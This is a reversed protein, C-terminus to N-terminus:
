EKPTFEIASEMKDGTLDKGGLTRDFVVKKGRNEVSVQERFIFTLKDRKWRKDTRHMTWIELRRFFIKKETKKTYSNKRFRKMEVLARTCKRSGKVILPTKEDFFDKVSQVFDCLEGQDTRSMNDQEDVAVWIHLGNETEIALDYTGEPLNSVVFSNGSESIAAKYAVADRRNIAFASLAKEGELVTCTISRGSAKKEEGRDFTISSVYVIETFKTGDAGREKKKLVFKFTREGGDVYVTTVVHCRHSSGSTLTVAYEFDMRPYEGGTYIKEPSGEEKFVWSKRMEKKTVKVTISKIESFALTTFKKRDLDFVKLTDKKTFRVVGEYVDGNSLKVSGAAGAGAGLAAMPAFLALASFAAILFKRM